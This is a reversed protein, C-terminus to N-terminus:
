KKEAAVKRGFNIISVAQFFKQEPSLKKYIEIQQDDLEELAGKIGKKMRPHLPPQNELYYGPSNADRSFKISYSAQAFAEKVFRMDRYFIDEWAKAGFCNKGLEFEAREILQNRTIFREFWLIRILLQRRASVLDRSATDQLLAHTIKEPLVDAILPKM